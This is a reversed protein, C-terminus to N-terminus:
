HLILSKRTINGIKQLQESMLVVFCTIRKMVQVQGDAERRMYDKLLILARLTEASMSMRRLGLIDRAINFLREVDVEAGLIPLYDRAVAFMLPFEQKHEKWWNLVWQVQCEKENLVFNVGLSNFYREIDDNATVVSGYEQLFDM